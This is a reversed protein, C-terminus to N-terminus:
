ALASTTSMRAAYVELPKDKFIDVVLGHNVGIFSLGVLCQRLVFGDFVRNPLIDSALSVGITDLGRPSHQLSGMGAGKMFDAILVHLAVKVLKRPQPTVVKASPM